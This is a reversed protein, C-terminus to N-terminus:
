QCIVVKTNVTGVTEGLSCNQWRNGIGWDSTERQLKKRSVVPLDLGADAHHLAQYSQIHQQSNRWLHSFYKCFDLWSRFLWKAWEACGLARQVEIKQVGTWPRKCPLFSKVHSSTAFAMIAPNLDSTWLLVFGLLFFCLCSLKSLPSGKCQDSTLRQFRTIYSLKWPELITACMPCGIRVQAPAPLGVTQVVDEGLYSAAPAWWPALPDGHRLPFVGHLRHSQESRHRLLLNLDSGDTAAWILALHGPSLPERAEGPM